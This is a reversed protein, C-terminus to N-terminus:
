ECVDLTVSIPTGVGSQQPIHITQSDKDRPCLGKSYAIYTREGPVVVRFQYKKGWSGLTKDLLGGVTVNVYQCSSLRQGAAATCVLDELPSICDQILDSVELGCTTSTHEVAHLFNTAIQSRTFTSKVGPASRSSFSIFFLLGLSILIVIIVLGVAEM